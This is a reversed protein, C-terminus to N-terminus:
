RGTTIGWVRQPIFGAESHVGETREWREAAVRGLSLSIEKAAPMVRGPWLNSRWTGPGLVSVRSGAM